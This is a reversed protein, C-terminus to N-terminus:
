ATSTSRPRVSERMPLSSMLAVNTVSMQVASASETIKRSGFTQNGMKRMTETPSMRRKGFSAEHNKGRYPFRTM